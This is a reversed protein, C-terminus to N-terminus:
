LSPMGQLLWYVNLVEKKDDKSIREMINFPRYGLYQLTDVLDYDSICDRPFVKFLFSLLEQTSVKLNYNHTDGPVFNNELYDKVKEQYDYM